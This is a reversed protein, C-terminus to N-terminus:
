PPAVNAGYDSKFDRWSGPARLLSGQTHRVRNVIEPEYALTPASSGAVSVDGDSVLAGLVQGNGSMAWGASGTPRRLYVVGYLTVGSTTFRLDGNVVILAPAAASAIDGTSDVVLDGDLWLPRGPNLSLATRVASATCGSGCTLKVVGPQEAFDAPLLNFVSGFLRDAQSLSGVAAIGSLGPDNAVLALAARGGVVSRLELNDDGSVSGGLQLAVGSSGSRTNYISVPVDSFDADGLATLTAQPPSALNGGLVALTRVQARGENSIGTVLAGGVSTYGYDLCRYPTTDELRTCAVVEIFVMGPLSPPPTATTYDIQTFRVLFAPFVGAGTPASVTPFTDTRCSCTWGSGNWVCLARRGGIPTLLGTNADIGLYRERFTPQATDTTPACSNDVRGANLMALAWEAGAEATELALTSRYQNTSARQEFVLNRSAYAAVLSIIFFLVMVVSLAAAGRQRHFQQPSPIRHM